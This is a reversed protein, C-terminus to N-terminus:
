ILLEAKLVTLAEGEIEVRGDLLRVGLKGTRSSAQFSRFEKKGTKM